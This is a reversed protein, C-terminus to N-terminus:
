GVHWDFGIGLDKSIHAESVGRTGGSRGFHVIGRRAAMCDECYHELLYM